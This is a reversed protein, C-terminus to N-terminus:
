RELEGLREEYKQQQDNDAEVCMEALKINIEAMEQYGKKMTDRMEIRRIERIYLKMAERVFESRNIKEVSVIDDVEKLLNDPLSILIKRLEAL